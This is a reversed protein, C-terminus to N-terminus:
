SLRQVFGYTGLGRAENSVGGMLDFPAIWILGFGLKKKM